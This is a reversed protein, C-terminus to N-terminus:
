PLKLPAATQEALRKLLIEDAVKLKNGDTAKANTGVLNVKVTSSM